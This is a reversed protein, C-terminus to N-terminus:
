PELNICFFHHPIVNLKRNLVIMIRFSQLNWSKMNGDAYYLLRYERGIEEIEKYYDSSPLTKVIQYRKWLMKIKHNLERNTM